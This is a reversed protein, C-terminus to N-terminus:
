HVLKGMNRDRVKDWRADSQAKGALWAEQSQGGKPGNRPLKTTTFETAPTFTPKRKRKM